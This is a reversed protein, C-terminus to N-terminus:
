AETYENNHEYYEGVKVLEAAANETWAMANYMRAVKLLMEPNETGAPLCSGYSFGCPSWLLHRPLPLPNM